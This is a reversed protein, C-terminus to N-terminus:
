LFRFEQMDFYVRYPDSKAVQYFPAFPGTKQEHAAIETPKFYLKQGQRILRQSIDEGNTMALPLTYRANQALLLPGFMVACRHPHQADVAELRLNTPLTVTVQDGPHWTREVRAWQGPKGETPAAQGNVAARFEEAWGPVRFRIAMAVPQKVDVTFTVAESEPFTSAQRVTVPQGKYTWTAESPLYLNVYLGDGDRFYIVDHYDAVTQIYTGSCCPWHDWYYEKQAMGIRYNAYYFSTGDAQVLPAAGMGNYLLREIWDGYRAEGTFQMLYKSLKFAGWSGCPIEASDSRFDLARGLTGDSPVSWEGPGYGGSAYIQTRTEYEYANRITKLYQEDGTVAWTMAASNFTNCHSYSHLFKAGPPDTSNVFQGWYTPYRWVDGFEKYLSNGNAVYARYLNECLTYWELTGHPQRGDRDMPSAPSRTRDFTKSAWETMREAHPWADTYNAYLALDVLGCMTKEYSYTDMGYPSRTPQGSVSKERTPTAQPQTTKAWEDALVIAKNRLEADNLASSMRAMGSLWQGFVVASTKSCWGDLGFGPAKMGARERFGKLIDDNSMEFYRDRTREMQQAFFSPLLRVGVYGFTELKVPAKMRSNATRDSAPVQGLSLSPVASAALASGLFTRRKM